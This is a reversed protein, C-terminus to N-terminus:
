QKGGKLAMLKALLGSDLRASGKPTTAPKEAADWLLAMKRPGTSVIKTIVQNAIAQDVRVRATEKGAADSGYYSYLVSMLEVAFTPTIPDNAYKGETTVPRRLGRVLEVLVDDLVSPPAAYAKREAATPEVIPKKATNAAPQAAKIAASEKLMQNELRAQLVNNELEMQAIKAADALAQTAAIGNVQTLVASRQQQQQPTMNTEGHALNALQPKGSAFLDDCL